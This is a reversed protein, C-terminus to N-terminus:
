LVYFEVMYGEAERKARMANEFKARATVLSEVEGM